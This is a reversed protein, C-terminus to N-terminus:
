DKCRWCHPYSHDVTARRVLVGSEKLMKIIDGDAEKVFRGQLEPVQGTFRGEDDVPLLLPLGDRARLDFDDMGFAPAIHVFGTGEDASVFDALRVTCARPNDEIEVQELPRRYALGELDRLRRGRLSDPRLPPRRQRRRSCQLVADVPDDDLGPTLGGGRSPM